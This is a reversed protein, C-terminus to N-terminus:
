SAMLQPTVEEHEELEILATPTLKALSGASMYRRAVAWEDHQEALVMGVLRVVAERNPFIGVVDSRRRIERNLREQPNNSWTQRWHEVPFAAFATVDPAGDELMEAVQPFRGRLQEVVRGLQAAHDRRLRPQRAVQARGGATQQAHVFPRDLGLLLEVALVEQAARVGRERSGVDGEAVFLEGLDLAAPAVHLLDEVQAGDVV